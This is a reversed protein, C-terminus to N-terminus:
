AASVAAADGTRRSLHLTLAHIPLGLVYAQVGHIAFIFAPNVGMAALTINVSVNIVQTALHAVALVVNPNTTCKTAIHRRCKSVPSLRVVHKRHACRAPNVIGNTTSM